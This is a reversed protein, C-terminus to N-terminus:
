EYAPDYEEFDDDENYEEFDEVDEYDSQSEGNASDYGDSTLDIRRSDDGDITPLETSSEMLRARGKRVTSATRGLVMEFNALKKDCYEETQRRMTNSEGRAKSVIQRARAEAAKVVEQREVMRSVQARGQEILDRHEQRAADIFDEREKLLWRAARLEEPLREQAQELLHLLEDRNVKVAASMPSPRAEALIEIVEELLNEVEPVAYQNPVDERSM